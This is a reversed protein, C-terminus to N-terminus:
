IESRLDVASGRLEASTASPEPKLLRLVRAVQERDRKAYAPEKRRQEARSLAVDTDMKWYQVLAEGVADRELLGLHALGCFVDFLGLIKEQFRDLANQVRVRDSRAEEDPTAQQLAMLIKEPDDEVLAVGRTKLFSKAGREWALARSYAPSANEFDEVACRIACESERQAARCLAAFFLADLAAEPKRRAAVVTTLGNGYPRLWGCGDPLESEKIVGAPAVFWFEHCMERAWQNKLPQELEHLFDSRAVKTEFAIRRLGDSPWLCVVICDVWGAVGAGTGNAVQEFLAYKGNPYRARLRAVLEQATYKRDAKGM